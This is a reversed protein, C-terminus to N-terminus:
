SGSIGCGADHRRTSNAATQAASIKSAPHAFGALESSTPEPWDELAATQNRFPAPSEAVIIEAAGGSALNM